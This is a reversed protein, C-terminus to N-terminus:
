SAEERRQTGMQKAVERWLAARNSRRSDYMWGVLAQAAADCVTCLNGDAWGCGGPCADIETCGCVRCRVFGNADRSVGSKKLRELGQDVPTKKNAM